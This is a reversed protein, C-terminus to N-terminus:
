DLLLEPPVVGSRMAYRVLGVVDHIGLKDMLLKRHAEVTKVSIGLSSAITKTNNGEAVLQLVDRQRETLQPSRGGRGDKLYNNLARRSIGRSLYIANHLVTKIALELEVTAADKILYGSAGARLAAAVYEKNAYMSLIITKVRPFRKTVRASVELGNVGPLTMAVLVVDLPRTGIIKLAQRGNEAEAVVEIWPIQELLARFGARVLRNTVALLLRSKVVHRKARM